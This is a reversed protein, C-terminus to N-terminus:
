PTTVSVAYHLGLRFLFAWSDSPFVRKLRYVTGTASSRVSLTLNFRIVRSAMDFNSTRIYLCEEIVSV